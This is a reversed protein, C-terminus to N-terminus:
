PFSCYQHMLELIKFGIASEASPEGGSSHPSALQLWHGRQLPSAPITTITFNVGHKVTYGFRSMFRANLEANLMRNVTRSGFWLM